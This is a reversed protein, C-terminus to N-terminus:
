REPPLWGFPAEDDYAASRPPSFLEDESLLRREQSRGMRRLQRPAIVRSFTPSDPKSNIAASAIGRAAVDVPIPRYRSLFLGLIPLAGLISIVQYAPNRPEGPVFLAPARVITWTLGTGKLYQEADRKSELYGRSVGFPTVSASLLVFQPVGDSVAMQAVNRTSVYNLHRFTLGRAPDPKTGGVLHIVAGHGRGRGRLSAPNWPDGYVVQVRGALSGLKNDADPKVLVTVDAERELLARVVRYGLFGTGGTVFIKKRSRQV